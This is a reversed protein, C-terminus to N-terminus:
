LREGAFTDCDFAAVYSVDCEEFAGFAAGGGEDGAPDADGAFSAAQAGRGASGREVAALPVAMVLGAGQGCESVSALKQVTGPRKIRASSLPALHALLWSYSSWKRATGRLATPAAGQLVFNLYFGQGRRRGGRRGDSLALFVARRAPMTRASSRWKRLNEWRSGRSLFFGTRTNRTNRPSRNEITRRHREQVSSSIKEPNLGRNSGHTTV